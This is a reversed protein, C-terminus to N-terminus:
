AVCTLGEMEFSSMPAIFYNSHKCGCHTVEGREMRVVFDPMRVLARAMALCEFGENLIQDAGARSVVGGVYVLPIHIAERFKRADELFYLEEFPVSPIVFRGGMRVGLKLWPSEMYHTMTALPRSGRMVYM